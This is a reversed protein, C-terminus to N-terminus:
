QAIKAKTNAKRKIYGMRGLLSRAQDRTLAIHGGNQALLNSNQKRIIGMAAAIAVESNVVGGAKRTAIM